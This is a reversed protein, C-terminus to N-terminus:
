QSRGLEKEVRNLEQGKAQLAERLGVLAKEIGELTTRLTPLTGAVDSEVLVGGIRRWCKRTSPLPELAAIVQQHEDRDMELENMKDGLAQVEARLSSVVKAQSGDAHPAHSPPGKSVAEM